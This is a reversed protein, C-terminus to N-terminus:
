KIYALLWKYKSNSLSKALFIIGKIVIYEISLVVGAIVLGFLVHNRILEGDSKLLMSMVKIVVRKIQESTCLIVISYRGFFEIIKCKEIKMSILYVVISGLVAALYYLYIHNFKLFYLDVRGNIQSCVISGLLTLFILAGGM